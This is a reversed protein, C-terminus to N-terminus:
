SITLGKELTLANYQMETLLTHSELKGVNGGVNVITQRNSHLLELPYPATDRM